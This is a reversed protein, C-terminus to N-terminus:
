EDWGCSPTSTFSLFMLIKRMLSSCLDKIAAMFPEHIMIAVPATKVDPAWGVYLKTQPPVWTSNWLEAQLKARKRYGTDLSPDKSEREWFKTARLPEFSTHANWVFVPRPRFTSAANEVWTMPPEARATWGFDRLAQPVGLKEYWRFGLLSAHISPLWFHRVLRAFALDLFFAALGSVMKFLLTNLCSMQMMDAMTVLFSSSPVVAQILAYHLVKPWNSPAFALAISFIHAEIADRFGAIVPQVFFHDAINRGEKIQSRVSARPVSVFRHAMTIQTASSVPVVLAGGGPHALVLLLM